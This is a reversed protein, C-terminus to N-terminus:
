QTFGTNKWNIIQDINNQPLRSGGYPMMGPTDQVKSIRDILGNNLVAAKVNQYTTLSM